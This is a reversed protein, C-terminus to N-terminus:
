TISLLRNLLSKNETRLRKIETILIEIESNQKLLYLNGLGNFNPLNQISGVSCNIFSNNLFIIKIQEM